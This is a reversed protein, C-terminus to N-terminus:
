QRHDLTVLKVFMQGRAKLTTGVGAVQEVRPAPSAHLSLFNRVLALDQASKIEGGDRPNAWHAVADLENVANASWVLWIRESGEETDLEFGDGQEPIWVAAGASLRPSGGHSTPSPFLINFSQDRGAGSPSENLVYLFGDGPSRFSLRVLDGATLVRDSAVLVPASDPHVRPNQRATIAYTLSLEPDAPPSVATAVSPPADAGFYRTATIGIAL